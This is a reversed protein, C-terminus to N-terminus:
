QATFEAGGGPVRGKSGLSGKSGGIGGEMKEHFISRVRSQEEVSWSGVALYPSKMEQFHFSLKRQTVLAPFPVRELNRHPLVSLLSRSLLLCEWAPVQHSQLIWTMLGVTEEM